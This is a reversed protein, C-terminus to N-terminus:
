RNDGDEKERRDLLVWQAILRLRDLVRRTDECPPFELLREAWEYLDSENRQINRAMQYALRPRYRLGLIEKKQQYNKWLEGCRLLHYLFSSKPKYNALANIEGVLHAADQWKVLDGLVCLRNRGRQKAQDLASDALKVTHALPLRPKVVAIGASLNIEPHRTYGKFADYIERALTLTVKRPGVILLDDGGSYVTYCDTYKTSLLWELWGSFFWDLERSLAAVRPLTDFGDTASDRRLGEQFVQGLYDVDAKLIGLLGNGAIKDFPKPDGNDDRPIYNALYRFMVPWRGARSLDPDNMRVVLFAGQHPKNDVAAGLGLCSIRDKEGDYSAYFSIFRARTLRRGLNLQSHCQDCIDPAPSENDDSFHKAAFRGCALCISAGAFPERVFVDVSRWAGEAQLASALRQAKRRQLKANLQALIKSFRGAAFDSDAMGASALNVALEGHFQSLLTQDFEQQLRQLRDATDPLNPLLIYFKGGSAMLLNALPLGFERMVRLSAAESLLQVFVSRARLRKAVGGAGVTSIGFIYDQIGSVGGTLLVCRTQNEGAIAEETLTDGKLHYEYLCAAIAATSRLRDYLSVEPADGQAGAPICWAYTQLLSLLHTYVCDFDDWNVYRRLESLRQKFQQQHVGAESPEASKGEIAFFPPTEDTARLPKAPYYRPVPSHANILEICDFVPALGAVRSAQHVAGDSREPSALHDASRLLALLNRTHPNASEPTPASSLRNEQYLRVLTQLLDADVCRAFDNQWAAFFDFGTQPKRETAPALAPESPQFYEVLGQLLVALLVTKEESTM